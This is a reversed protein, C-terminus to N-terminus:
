ANRAIAKFARFYDRAASYDDCRVKDHLAGSANRVEILHMGSPFLKEHSVTWGNKHEFNRM